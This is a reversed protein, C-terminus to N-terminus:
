AISNNAAGDYIFINQEDDLIFLHVNFYISITM